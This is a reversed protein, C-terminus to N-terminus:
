SSVRGVVGAKNVVVDGHDDDGVDQETGRYSGDEVVNKGLVGFGWFGLVGHLLDVSLDM